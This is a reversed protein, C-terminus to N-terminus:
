RSFIPWTTRAPRPYRRAPRQPSGTASRPDPPTKSKSNAVGGPSTKRGFTSVGAEGGEQQQTSNPSAPPTPKDLIAKILDDDSVNEDEGDGKASPPGGLASEDVDLDTDVSLGAVDSDVIPDTMNRSQYPWHLIKGCSGNRGVGRREREDGDGGRRAVVAASPRAPPRADVCENDKGRTIM